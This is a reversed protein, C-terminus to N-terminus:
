PAISYVPAPRTYWASFFNLEIFSLFLNGLKKIAQDLSLFNLSYCAFLHFFLVICFLFSFLVSLALEIEKKSRKWKARKIGSQIKVLSTM